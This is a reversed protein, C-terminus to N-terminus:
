ARTARTACTRAPRTTWWWQLRNDRYHGWTNNLRTDGLPLQWLVVPTHTRRTFGALYANLRRFDAPGM